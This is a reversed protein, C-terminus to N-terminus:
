DTETMLDVVAEHFVTAALTAKKAIQRLEQEELYTPEKTELWTVFIEGALVVPDYGTEEKEEMKGNWPVPRVIGNNDIQLYEEKGELKRIISEKM